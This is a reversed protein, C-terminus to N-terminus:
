DLNNLGNEKSKNFMFNLFKFALFFYFISIVAAVALHYYNMGSTIVERIGEFIHSGPFLYAIKQFWNPFLSLSYYAGSILAFAWPIAWAVFEVNKGFYFILAATFLGITWGFVIFLPLYPLIFMSIYFINQGFILYVLFCSYIYTITAQMLGFTMLSISFELLSLPGAFLNTLHHEWIEVLLNRSIELASRYVLYWCVLCTLFLLMFNDSKPISDERAWIALFGFLIMDVLPYYLSDAIRIPDRFTPILHRSIIATIRSLKIM